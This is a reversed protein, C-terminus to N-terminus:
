FQGLLKAVARAIDETLEEPMSHLQNLTNKYFPQKQGSFRQACSPRRGDVMLPCPDNRTCMPRPVFTPLFGWIRTAKRYRHNIGDSYKCYCIDKYPIGQIVDRTKLLGTAPNELTHCKPKLYRIIELTKAVIGDALEFNRATKATTRARSYETCPPSAHIYDYTGPEIQQYDWDLINCTWTAGCKKDIDLSDVHFGFKELSRDVSKTGCFLVLATKM